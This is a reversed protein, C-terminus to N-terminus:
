LFIPKTLTHYAKSKISCMRMYIDVLNHGIFAFVIGRTTSPLRSRLSLEVNRIDRINEDVRKRCCDIILSSATLRRLTNTLYECRKAERVSRQSPVHSILSAMIIVRMRIVILNPMQRRADYFMDPDLLFLDSLQTCLQSIDWDGNGNTLCIQCIVADGRVEAACRQVKTNCCCKRGNVGTCKKKECYVIPMM